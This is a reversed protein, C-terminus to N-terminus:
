NNLNHSTSQLFALVLILVVICFASVTITFASIIKIPLYGMITVAILASGMSIFSMMSSASAKDKIANSALFAGSSFLLGSFLYLFMTTIFFWETKPNHTISIFFLSIFCFGMCGLGLFLTYQIGHKKILHSSLFGSGFMGLMNILNWYGYVDPTLNLTSYAYLPAATSCCYSVMALCGATLSFVILKISKLAKCYGSLIVSPQLFISLKHSKPFEWTLYLMTIGHIILFLFCYKWHLYQTILGGLIVALGIGSAFSASAFSMIQKAQEEPLLENILIFSCSLGAAAGLGTILRGVLLLSYNLMSVSVICLLIGVLNIILGIRLSNLCGFRNAFYGYILQGVVYGLLFISIVWELAGYGLAYTLEIQPLAPTIITASITAICFYSLLLVIKFQGM